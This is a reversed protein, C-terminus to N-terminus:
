DALARAGTGVGIEHSFLIILWLKPGHIERASNCAGGAPLVLDTGM